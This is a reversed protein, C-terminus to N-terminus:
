WEIGIIDNSKVHGSNKKIPCHWIKSYGSNKLNKLISHSYAFILIDWAQDVTCM